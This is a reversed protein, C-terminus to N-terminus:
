EVWRTVEKKLEKWLRKIEDGDGVATSQLIDVLERGRKTIRAVPYEHGCSPCNFVRKVSEDEQTEDRLVPYFMHTCEDCTVTRM